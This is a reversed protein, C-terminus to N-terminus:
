RLLLTPAATLAGPTQPALSKTAEPVEDPTALEEPPAGAEAEVELATDPLEVEVDVSTGEDIDLLLELALEVEVPTDEDVDLLLEAVLVLTLAVGVATEHGAEFLM